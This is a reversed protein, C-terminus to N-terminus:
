LTPIDHHTVLRKTNGPTPRNTTTNKASPTLRPLDASRRITNGLMSTM